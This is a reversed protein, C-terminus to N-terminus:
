LSLVLSLPFIIAYKVDLYYYRLPFNNAHNMDFGNAPGGNDTTFVIITDELMKKDALAKIVRGVGDDLASTMAAVDHV